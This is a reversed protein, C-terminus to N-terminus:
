TMSWLTEKEHCSSCDPTTTEESSNMKWVLGDPFVPPAPSKEAFVFCFAPCLAGHNTGWETTGKTNGDVRWFSWCCGLLHISPVLPTNQSVCVMLWGDSGWQTRTKCSGFGQCCTASFAAIGFRLKWILYKFMNILTSKGKGTIPVTVMLYFVFSYKPWGM